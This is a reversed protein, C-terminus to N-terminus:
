RRSTGLPNFIEFDDVYLNIAIRLDGGSLFYNQKYYEGDRVNRYEHFSTQTKPTELHELLDTCFLLQQLSQLVPIYQFTRNRHLDLIYEVPEIVGFHSNYYQTCKYAIAHLGDKAIAIGLSNSKCLLTSLDDVVSEEIEQDHRQFIDSIIGKTVPLCATSLIYHLESLIDDIVTKPTHVINELRLLLCAINEEVVNAM